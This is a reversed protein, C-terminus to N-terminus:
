EGKKEFSERDKCFRCHAGHLDEGYYKCDECSKNMNRNFMVIRHLMGYLENAQERDLRIDIYDEHCRELKSELLCHVVDFISM